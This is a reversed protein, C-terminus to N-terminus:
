GTVPSGVMFTCEDGASLEHVENTGRDAKPPVSIGRM